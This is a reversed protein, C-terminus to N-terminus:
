KKKKLCFVAYSICRHSSNLRTSKRDIAGVGAGYAVRKLATMAKAGKFGLTGPVLISPDASAMGIAGVFQMATTDTAIREEAKKDIDKRAVMIDYHKKSQSTNLLNYDEPTSLSDFVAQKDEPEWTEALDENTLRTEPNYGTMGFVNFHTAYDEFSGGEIERTIKPKEIEEGLYDQTAM